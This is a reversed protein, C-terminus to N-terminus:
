LKKSCLYKEFGKMYEIELNNIDIELIRLAYKINGYANIYTEVLKKFDTIDNKLEIATKLHNLEDKKANLAKYICSGYPDYYRYEDEIQMYDYRDM